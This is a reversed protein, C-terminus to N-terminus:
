SFKYPRKNKLYHKTHELIEHERQCETCRTAFPLAKLRIESIEKKCDICFGYLGNDLRNIAEIIRKLTNNKIIIIQAETEYDGTVNFVEVLDRVERDFCINKLNKILEKKKNELMEKLIEYRQNSNNNM